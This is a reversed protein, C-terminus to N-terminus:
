SSPGSWECCRYKTETVNASNTTQYTSYNSIAKYKTTNNWGNYYNGYQTM